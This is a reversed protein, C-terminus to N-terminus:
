VVSLVSSVSFDIKSCPYCQNARFLIDYVVSFNRSARFVRCMMAISHFLFPFFHVLFNLRGSQSLRQFLAETHFNKFLPFFPFFIKFVSLVSICQYIQAIAYYAQPYIFLLLCPFWPFMAQRSISLEYNVIWLECNMIWLEYNM